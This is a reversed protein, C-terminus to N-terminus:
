SSASRRRRWWSSTSSPRLRLRGHRQYKKERPRLAGQIRGMRRSGYPLKSSRDRRRRQGGDELRGGGRRMWLNGGTGQGIEALWGALPVGAPKAAGAM